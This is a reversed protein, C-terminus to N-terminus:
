SVLQKTQLFDLKMAPEVFEGYAHVNKELTSHRFYRDESTREDSQM